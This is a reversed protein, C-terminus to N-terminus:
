EVSTIYYYVPQGGMYCEVEVDPFKKELKEVLKNADEEKVDEGYYVSIMGSDEDVMADIMEITTAELDEGVALIGEDGIGMINGEKIEHDDIVTDRVAYTIEGTAIGSMSEIMSEKNDDPSEGPIFGLMAAIGQPITKSPIVILKKDELLIEAQQAALIINTNNPLIFINDANVKDVAKLIDDTSPNMTQGGSIIADIELSKFVEDLGEGVSVAIFGNEKRPEDKKAEAKKDAEAQEKARKEANQILREHHEERMNDVKMRSLSGYTLARTFAEGPQNTHVHVKVIEDDAVMVISDGISHLFEKFKDEEDEDLPNDLNIIFETCYGFKINAEEIEIDDLNAGGGSKSTGELTYDIEKGQLADYAGKVVTMLGEGGSDVVGAEKLVPLMEPTQSLVYDGHKIIEDVVFILDESEAVLEEAKEAMGKAVTLITGEKPKMVAKYATEVAKNCARSLIEVNIEQEKKIERTFGRFLQSLIVGSNGRAGRLSGSSIAKSVTEMDPKDISGVEQAASMITLTMNTGTDGDPVPFVNLENIYEKNAELNKAGAIFAKQLLEASISMLEM